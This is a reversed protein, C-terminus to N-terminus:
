ADYPDTGWWIPAVYHRSERHLTEAIGKATFQDLESIASM